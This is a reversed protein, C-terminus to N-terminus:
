NGLHNELRELAKIVQKTQYWKALGNRGEQINVRPNGPWPMQYVLHSTGRSRPPGFFHDCIQALRSFRIGKPNKRLEQIVVPIDNM